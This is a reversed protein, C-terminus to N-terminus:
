ILKSLKKHLEKLAPKMIKFCKQYEKKGAGFPDSVDNSSDIYSLLTRTKSQALPFRMILSDVHNYTMCIIKDAWETLKCTLYTSGEFICKINEGELVLQSEPSIPIGDATALGASKVQINDENQCLHKFYVEAMPSRCTNGTCIFLINM